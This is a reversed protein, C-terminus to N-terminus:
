SVHRLKLFNKGGFSEHRAYLPYMDMVICGQSNVVHSDFTYMKKNGNVIPRVSAKVKKLRGLFRFIFIFKDYQAQSYM